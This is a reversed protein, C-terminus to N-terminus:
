MRGSSWRRWKLPVITKAYIYLDIDSHRDLIGNTQSGGMAITRVDPIGIFEDAVKKALDINRM